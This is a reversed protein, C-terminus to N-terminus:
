WMHAQHWSPESGEHSDQSDFEPGRYPCCTSEFTLWRELEERHVKSLPRVVTYQAFASKVKEVFQFYFFFISSSPPSHLFFLLLSLPFNFLLFPCFFPSILFLFGVQEVRKVVITHMLDLHMALKFILLLVLLKSAHNLLLLSSVQETYPLPKTGLVLLPSLPLCSPPLHFLLPFTPAPLILFFLPSSFLSPSPLPPYPM